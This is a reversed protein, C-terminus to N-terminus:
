GAETGVEPEAVPLDIVFRAGEDTSSDLRITGGHAEVIQRSIALGLGTGHEKGHTVFPDFLSDTVEDPIGPGTDQVNIRVAGDTPAVELSLSGGNEQM